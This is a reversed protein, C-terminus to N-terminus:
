ASPAHTATAHVDNSATASASASTRRAESARYLGAGVLIGVVTFIATLKGEGLQALSTGPCTGTLAWGVGFLASGLILGRKLPKQELKYRCGEACAIGRRRLVYLVPAATLVAVAIVGALRLDELLFMGAIADYDTAGARSLLFGFLVGFALSRKM